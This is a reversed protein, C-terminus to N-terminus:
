NDHKSRSNAQNPFELSIHRMQNTLFGKVVTIFSNVVIKRGDPRVGSFGRLVTRGSVVKGFDIDGSYDCHPVLIM